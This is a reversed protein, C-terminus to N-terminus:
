DEDLVGGLLSAIKRACELSMSEAIMYVAAYLAAESMGVKSIETSLERTVGEIPVDCVLASFSYRFHVLAAKEKEIRKMRVRHKAYLVWCAASKGESCVKHCEDPHEWDNLALPCSGSMDAMIEGYVQNLEAQADVKDSM